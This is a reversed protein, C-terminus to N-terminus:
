FEFSETLVESGRRGRMTNQQLREALEYNRLKENNSEYETRFVIITMSRALKFPYMYRLNLMDQRFAGAAAAAQWLIRSGGSLQNM